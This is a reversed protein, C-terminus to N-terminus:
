QEQLIYAPLLASFSGNIQMTRAPDFEGGALPERYHAAAEFSGEVFFGYDREEFTTLSLAIDNAQDESESAMWGSRWADSLYMVGANLPILQGGVSMVEFSFLLSDESIKVTDESPQGWLQCSQLNAIAISLGFSQSENDQATLFWTREEGNLTATINGFVDQAFSVTPAISLAAAFVAKHFSSFPM